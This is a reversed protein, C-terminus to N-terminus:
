VSGKLTRGGYNRMIVRRCGLCNKHEVGRQKQHVCRVSCFKTERGRKGPDRNKGKAEVGLCVDLRTEFERGGGGKVVM